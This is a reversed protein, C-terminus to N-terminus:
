NTLFFLFLNFDLASSKIISWSIKFILFNLFLRVILGRAFLALQATCPFFTTQM